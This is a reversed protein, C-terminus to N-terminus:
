SEASLEESFVKSFYAEVFTKNESLKKSYKTNM